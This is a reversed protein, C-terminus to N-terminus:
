DMISSHSRLPWQTSKKRTDALSLQIREQILRKGIFYSFVSMGALPLLSLAIMLVLM